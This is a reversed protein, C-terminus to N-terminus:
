SKRHRRYIIELISATWGTQHSAGCGRGTDAHTYEYFLVLHRWKPDQAYRSVTGHMPRNGEKDPLFGALLRDELQSIRLPFNFTGSTKTLAARTMYLDMSELLLYNMFVWVPGRWNSNGGFAGSDSEGPTYKVTVPEDGVHMTYPEKEYVKSLSRIGYPGFFEDESFVREMISHARPMSLVSMFFESENLRCLFQPFDALYSDVENAPTSFKKLDIKACALLPVLGAMSRLRIPVPGFPTHFADYIFRDEEHWLGQESINRNIATAINLFHTLFKPIMDCYVTDIRGLEVAIKLMWLAYCAMWGTCDVQVLAWSNPLAGSRDIVSINDMGLFGRGFTSTSKLEMHSWCSYNLLLRHFCRRLFTTDGAGDKYFINLVAWAQLPPNPDGLEFECGPLQGQPHMYNDSLFTILQHKAFKTDFRACLVASICLDWGAYWPFEWKDPMLLIHHNRVHSWDSNRGSSGKNERCRRYDRLWHKVDFCYYQKSWMLGALAQIGINQEEKSFKPMIKNYYEQAEKRKLAFHNVLDQLNMTLTNHMNEIRWYISTKNGADLKIKHYAGCKTGMCLPNVADHKEHVVYQHFADKIFFAGCSDERHTPSQNDTFLLTPPERSEQLFILRWQGFHYKIRVTGDSAEKMQPESRQNMKPIPEHKQLHRFWFQPILHLVEEHRGCNTIELHCALGLHDTKAYEVQVDWHGGEEFIGTDMLEFEMDHCSRTRNEDRLRKYPFACHPYKYLARMYSHDPLSDLYYYLEKVDEGHNGEIGTLGFLREKLIPDKGNWLAMSACLLSCKDSAGLLGDEGSVYAHFTADEYSVHEWNNDNASYDERVTGWQRESLYPGWFMPDDVAHDFATTSSIHEEGWFNDESTASSSAQICWLNPNRNQSVDKARTVDDVKDGDIGYVYPLKDVSSGSDATAAESVDQHPSDKKKEKDDDQQRQKKATPEEETPPYERSTEEAHHKAKPMIDTQADGDVAPLRIDIM